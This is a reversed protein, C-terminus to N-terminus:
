IEPPLAIKPASSPVLKLSLRSHKEDEEVGAPALDCTISLDKSEGLFLTLVSKAPLRAWYDRIGNRLSEPIEFEVLYSISKKGLFSRTPVVIAVAAGPHAKVYLDAADKSEFSKILSLEFEAAAALRSVDRRAAAATEGNGIPQVIILNRGRSECGPELCTFDETVYPNDPVSSRTPRALIGGNLDPGYYLLVESSIAPIPYFRVSVQVLERLVQPIGPFLLGVRDNDLGRGPPREVRLSAQTLLRGATLGILESAESQQQLETLKDNAKRLNEQAAALQATDDASAHSDLVASRTGAALALTLCILSLWGRPTIRRLLPAEGKEWSDGGFAALTSITGLILLLVKLGTSDM